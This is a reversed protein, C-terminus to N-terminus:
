LPRGMEKAFEIPDKCWKRRNCDKCLIQLNSPWNSGGRSIPQIHDVEYGDGLDTTCYNCKHGQAELLRHIDKANHRGEAGRLLARRKRVYSRKEEPNRKHRERSRAREAEVWQPDLKKEARRAKSQERAKERNDIYRQRHYAKSKEKNAEVWAATRSIANLRFAADSHYKAKTRATSKKSLSPDSARQSAAKQRMCEACSHDCVYRYDVHGRACPKGTYYRKLGAALADGRTVVEPEPTIPSDAMRAFEVQRKTLAGPTPAGHNGAIPLM